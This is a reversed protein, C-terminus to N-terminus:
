KTGAPRSCSLLSQLRTFLLVVLSAQVLIHIVDAMVPHIWSDRLADAAQVRMLRGIVPKQLGVPYSFKGVNNVLYIEFQTSGTDYPPWLLISDAPM